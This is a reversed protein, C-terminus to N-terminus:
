AGAEENELHQRLEDALQAMVELQSPLADILDIRMASDSALILIRCMDGLQTARHHPSTATPDEAGPEYIPLRVFGTPISLAPSNGSAPDKPM